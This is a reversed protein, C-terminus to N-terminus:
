SGSWYFGFLVTKVYHTQTHSLPSDFAKSKKEFIFNKYIAEERLPYRCTLQDMERECLSDASKETGKLSLCYM